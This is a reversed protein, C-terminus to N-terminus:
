RIRKQKKMNFYISWDLIFEKISKREKYLAFKDKSFDVNQLIFVKESLFIEVHSRAKFPLHFFSRLKLSEIKLVFLQFYTKLIFIIVSVYIRILNNYKTFFRSKGNKM